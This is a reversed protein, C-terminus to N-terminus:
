DSKNGNASVFQDLGPCADLLEKLRHTRTGNDEWERDTADNLIPELRHIWYNAQPQSFGFLRAQLTQIPHWNEYITIFLLKDALEVLQGKRGGGRRRIRPKTRAAERRQFDAEYAEEFDALLGDFEDTTLGTLAHLLQADERVNAYTVM